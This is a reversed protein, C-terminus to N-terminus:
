YIVVLKQRNYNGKGDSLELEYTGKELNSNLIYNSSNSFTSNHVIKGTMDSLKIHVNDLIQNFVIHIEGKTPNPYISLENDWKQETLNLTKFTYCSSTDVCSLNYIKVSYSGNHTPKFVQRIEQNLINYNNNCDLWQYKASAQNAKLMDGDQRTVSTDIANLVTLNLKTNFLCGTVNSFSYSGSKTYTVNNIPWTYPGCSTVNMSSSPPVDFAEVQDFRDFSSGQTASYGLGRKAFACWIAYKNEGNFLLEDALLIADRGDVFGPNCPQLKLAYTVLKLAINNGGKGSVLNTDFGHKEVLGATMDWLMTAWVFGIGHPKTLLVSDEINKYTFNNVGFNTSYPAPRIGRGTSDQKIAYLGMVRRDKAFDHKRLTLMLAYYDSWGEGMQEANYLCSTNSPGGTLRNSIGHAYEHVIIGNDFDSDRDNSILKPDLTATVKNSVIANILADGDDLSIMLSPITILSDIGNSNIGSMAIISSTNTNNVIIVALAGFDQARKVKEPFKCIGRRIVVIKGNFSSGNTPNECADNADPSTNDNYLVLETNSIKSFTPPGFSALVGEIDKALNSPSVIKLFKTPRSIKWVYMQMRPSQGDPPTSFNANNFGSGDLAQAHVFDNEAGGKNFNTTQFNGSAEDFGYAYTIDHVMNNVYFLQTLGADRNELPFNTSDFPYNFEYTNNVYPSYGPEDDADADEYAYVNNGKTTKDENGLSGKFDHWGNLSYENGFPNEKKKQTTYLPSEFPLPFVTYIPNSGRKPSKFDDVEETSQYDCSNLYSHKNNPQTNNESNFNCSVTWDSKHMINGTNVDVCVDWWHNNKFDKVSFNWVQLLDNGYPLYMLQIKITDGKEDLYIQINESRKKVFKIQQRKVINLQNCAQSYAKEADFSLANEKVRKICNKQFRNSTNKVLDSKIFFTAIANYVEIENVNQKIHVISGGLNLDKIEDTITFNLDTAEYASFANNETKFYQEIKYRNDKSIQGVFNQANVFGNYVILVLFTLVLKMNNM